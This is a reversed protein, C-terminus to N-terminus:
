GGSGGHTCFGLMAPRCWSGKLTGLLAPFNPAVLVRGAIVVQVWPGPIPSPHFPCLPSLYRRDGLDDTSCSLSWSGSLSPPVLPM